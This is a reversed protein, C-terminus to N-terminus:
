SLKAPGKRDSVPARDSPEAAVVVEYHRVTADFERLLARAEAPVVARELHEGAFKRVADMSEWLTLVAFEIDGNRHRRLVYGGRHGEIQRLAPLVSQRVHSVYGDSKDLTTSGFWLRAIM